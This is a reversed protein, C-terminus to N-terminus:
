ATARRVQRTLLYTAPASLLVLLAAYPAAAGYALSNSQNWFETALTRTGLPSLLLTATLETVVALFVLAAGAGLGPAILPLTVRRLTGLTGEGLSHAVADLVPPAQALAARATVVARPLFLIAYGAILLPATQYLPKAARISITVLALAVVIGPLASSVYTSRELATSVRGRHRVALWAPPVALLVTVGAAVAGLSLSTGTAQLLMHRDIGTSSGAVLWRLISGIPVGLALVVLAALGALVPWVARGLRARAVPRPAGGGIRAYRSRGRLGLDALLLALCLLVLVGALMTAASSNFSSQFQDYIATTFTPYRLLVLAGFESLLHLSVLLGGGLLAPRLQPLVVRAFAAWRGLGLSYASEELGPDLGRLAAAAPLFVLPFYSLTTITVAAAYGDMGPTISVWGFANVFSPVALPAVLLVTWVRRGPLDSREVLWAAVVGLLLSLAVSGATLRITNWLLDATRPRFVLRSAESWGTQVAEYAVFGLPVLTLLAVAAAALVLLAPPRPTRRRVATAPPGASPGAPPAATVAM